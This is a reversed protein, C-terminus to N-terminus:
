FQEGTLGKLYEALILGARRNYEAGPHGRAALDEETYDPLKFLSVNEMGDRKCREVTEESLEPMTRSDPAIWVIKADPNCARVDKLFRVSGEVAKDRMEAVNDKGRMGGVDNSHLRIVVIDAKWASFDYDNQCGRAEAAEGKQTGVIKRYGDAMNNEAIFQWDWNVGYGSQSLIRYEAGLERACIHAYGAAASFFLPIWEDNGRPALVGEASTLSDGVFEIRM